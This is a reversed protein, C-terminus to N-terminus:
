KGHRETYEIGFKEFLQREIKLSEEKSLGERVIQLNLRGYEEVFKEYQLGRSSKAHSEKARKIRGSGVYRIRGETDKHFYVVYNNDIM